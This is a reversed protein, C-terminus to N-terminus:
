SPAQGPTPGPAASPAPRPVPSPAAAATHPVRPIPVPTQSHKATAAGAPTTAGSNNGSNNQHSQNNQHHHHGHHNRENYRELELKLLQLDDQTQPQQEFVARVLLWENKQMKAAQTMLFGAASCTALPGLIERASAEGDRQAQERAALQAAATMAPIPHPSPVPAHPHAHPHAPAVAAPAHPVPAHAPAQQHAPRSAVPIPHPQQHIHPPPPGAPLPPQSSVAAPPPPVATAPPAQQLAPPRIPAPQQQQQAPPQPQPQLAQPPLPQVQPMLPPPAQQQQPPQPQPQPQLAPQVPVPSAQVQNPMTPTQAVMPSFAPASLSATRSGGGNAAGNAPLPKPTATSPTSEQSPPAGATPAPTAGLANGTINNDVYPGAWNPGRLKEMAAADNRYVVVLLLMPATRSTPIFNDELNLMFEPHSSTGAPIPVLYTDRVNGVGKEGVVGYRRRQTFYDILALFDAKAADTAPSLSAVSIDTPASYRLSCLYETAIQEDIRGAVTLKKPVLTTWPLNITTSLNVGGVHRAAAQFNAVTNMNVTGRWVIDPDTEESPSYPPSEDGDDQLMRDVDPDEGPGDVPFQPQSPRRQHGATATTPSRVSSFVRKLDFDKKDGGKTEVRLNGSRGQRAASGAELGRRGNSAAGAGGAADAADSADRASQRRLSSPKDESAVAASDREVIEEGKHTRRLRPASADEAELISQREAQAKMRATKQQLERSALEDSTMTALMPPILSGHVLRACLEHNEKLNFRLTRLQAGYEKHSPHADHVAREIQIAFREATAEVSAGDAPTFEGRKQMGGLVEGIVRSLGKAPAQRADVLDAIKEPLDAPPNYVPLVEESLKRRSPRGDKDEESDARTKRKTGAPGAKPDRRAEPTPSPKASGEKTDSNRKPKAKRGGKRRKGSAKEEEYQRRREEWPKEGRAMGELLEKHNEPKCQECYYDKPLDESYVSMGMCVNHQWATCTDCAIWPEGPDGDQERAGCVCRIIEEESDEEEQPSEPKKSGKRGRKKGDAAAQQELQDLSKHQGKTSRVSRRPEADSM